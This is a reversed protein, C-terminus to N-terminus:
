PQDPGPGVCRYKAQQLKMKLHAKYLILKPLLWLGWGGAEM